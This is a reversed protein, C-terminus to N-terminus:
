WWATPRRSSSRAAHPPWPRPREPAPPARSSWWNPVPLSRQWSRESARDFRHRMPRSRIPRARPTTARPRPPRHPRSGGRPGAALHPRPHTRAGRPPRSAPRVRRRTRATLDEALERAGRRRRGHERPRHAARGRWPHRRREMGIPPLRAAVAGGRGGPRSRTGGVLSRGGAGPQAPRPLGPRATRRGVAVDARRRRPARDQGAPRRGLCARGVGAAIGSRTRTRSQRHAM